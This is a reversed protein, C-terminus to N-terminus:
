CDKSQEEGEKGESARGGEKGTAKFELCKVASNGWGSSIHCAGSEEAGSQGEQGKHCLLEWVSLVARPAPSSSPDSVHEGPGECCDEKVSSTISIRHWTVLNAFSPAPFMAPTNAELQGEMIDLKKSPSFVQISKANM